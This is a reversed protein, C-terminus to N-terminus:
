KALLAPKPSYPYASHMWLSLAALVGGVIQEKTIKPSDDGEERGLVAQLIGSLLLGFILAFGKKVAGAYKTVLGVVIGGVANTVVPIMTQPTWEDFFGKERIRKGDQNTLLSALFFIMSAVCLEMTFLYSDRGGTKGCGSASQLNKQVLAGALGSIFSALLVPIVGQTFHTSSKTAKQETTEKEISKAPETKKWFFLKDISVVKEIILAAAFLIVLSAAQVRSQKRGIILYCCLAASLTKTQNLVNFTLPDLNQYAMLTAINQVCYLAAPVGAIM